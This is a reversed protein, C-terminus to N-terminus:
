LSQVCMLESWSVSGPGIDRGDLVILSIAKSVIATSPISFMHIKNDKDALYGLIESFIIWGLPVVKLYLEGQLLMFTEVDEM